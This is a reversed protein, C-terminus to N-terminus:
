AEEKELPALIAKCIRCKNCISEPDYSRGGEVACVREAAAELIARDRQAILADTKDIAGDMTVKKRADTKSAECFMNGIRITLDHASRPETQPM